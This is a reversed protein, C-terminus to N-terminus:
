KWFSKNYAEIVDEINKKGAVSLSHVTYEPFSLGRDFCYEILWMASHYGTKEKYSDYPFVDHVSQPGTPYHEDSLDHDFSIHSPLGRTQIMKVFEDHSRVIVWEVPPLSIWKVESPMRVDDLFLNYYM